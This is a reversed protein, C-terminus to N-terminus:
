SVEVARRKRIIADLSPMSTSTTETDDDLSWPHPERLSARWEAHLALVAALDSRVSASLTAFGSARQLMTQELASDELVRGKLLARAQHLRSSKNRLVTGTYGKVTELWEVFADEPVPVTEGRHRSLIARGVAEALPAPLANAIMVDRDRVRKVGDWKWTEPFGQLRALEQWSLSPVKAAPALDNKHAQYGRTARERSSRIITPCPEDISRVGQGGSFPRMFYVRTADSTGSPNIGVDGLIDRVNTRPADKTVELASSLFGDVEGLRGVLIFRKRAQGVGYHSADLKMESLGYGGRKLIRRARQWAKSKTVETVNEMMIWEPRVVAILVAFALTMDARTGEVQQGARSFDQCPPGGAIMDVNKLLVEPVLGLLDGLDGAKGHHGRNLPLPRLLTKKMPFNDKYVALAPAWTDYAAVINFGANRLGLSMGGAGCCVEVVNM